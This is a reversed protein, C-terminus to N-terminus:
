SITYTFSYCVTHNATSVAINKMSARDNTPDAEIGYSENAIAISSGTGGLQYATTFASAIPLSIGLLVAGTATPDIDLQGSVTVVQWVRMYTALRATSASINTTNTLTPTYTWSVSDAKAYVRWERSLIQTGSCSSFYSQAECSSQNGDYAPCVENWSCTNDGSNYSCFSYNAICGTPTCAGATLYLSCDYTTKYYNLHAGDKYNSLTLSSAGNITTAPSTTAPYIISDAWNSADNSVFLTRDVYSDGDVLTANLVSAWNCGTEGACPWSSTYSACTVTGNCATGFTGSCTGTNYTGSCANYNGSCNLFPTGTCAGTGSDYVCWANYGLCASGDGGGDSYPTCDGFNQTCQGAYSGCTAEDFPSCDWTAGWACSGGYSDDQSECSTQDTPWVCSGTAVTCWSAWACAGMGSEYDYVSCSSGAYWTCPLHSECTAQWSATYTACSTQSPTGTCAAATTGDLLWHTATNDLTWSATLRKTKLALGGGSMLTSTPTTGSGTGAGVSSGFMWYWVARLDGTHYFYTPYNFSYLSNSTLGSNWTYFSFGNGGSTYVDYGGSYNAGTAARLVGAFLYDTWTYSGDNNFTQSRTTWPSGNSWSGEISLGGVNLNSKQNNGSLPKISVSDITFRATNTPTFALVASSLAVFRETYTGNAWVATGTFWWVSPTVTGVTWNSITYTLLYERLTYLAVNQSLVATGNSSKVVTNASYAFGSGVTWGTASGTFTWNTLQENGLTSFVSLRKNTNNFFFNQNDQSLITDPDVFLVSWKTGGTIGGGIAPALTEIKDYLANKTPVELSGNWWAWYVEDPVILDGTMTDGAKNVKGDLASQLDTQNSLTGTITGWVGNASITSLTFESRSPNYTLWYQQATPTGVNVDMLQRLFMAWGGGTPLKNIKKLIDEFKINIEDESLIKPLESLITDKLTKKIESVEKKTFYDVWKIPTVWDDWKISEWPKWPQWPEWKIPPPILPLLFKDINKNLFNELAKEPNFTEDEREDKFIIEIESSNLSIQM